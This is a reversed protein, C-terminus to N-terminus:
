LVRVEVTVDQEGTDDNIRIIFRDIGSFNPQPSYLNNAADYSGYAPASVQQRKYNPHLVPRVSTRNFENSRSVTLRQDLSVKYQSCLIPARYFYPTVTVQLRGAIQSVPASRLAPRATAQLRVNETQSLVPQPSSIYPRDTTCGPHRHNRDLDLMLSKDNQPYKLNLISPTTDAPDDHRPDYVSFVALSEPVKRVRLKGDEAQAYFSTFQNCNGSTAFRGLIQWTSCAPLDYETAPLSYFQLNDGVFAQQQKSNPSSYRAMINQTGTTLYQWNYDAPGTQLTHSTLRLDTYDANLSLNLWGHNLNDPQYSFYSENLSFTGRALWAEASGQSSVPSSRLNLQAQGPAFVRTFRNSRIWFPAKISMDSPDLPIWLSNIAQLASGAAPQMSNAFGSILVDNYHRELVVFGLSTNNLQQAQGFNPVNSTEIIRQDLLQGSRDIKVVQVNIRRYDATQGIQATRVNRALLWGGSVDIASWRGYTGPAQDFDLFKYTGIARDTDVSLFALRDLSKHSSALTLSSGSTESGPLWLQEEYQRIGNIQLGEFDLKLKRNTWGNSDFTVIEVQGNDGWTAIPAEGFLPAGHEHQHTLPLRYSTQLYAFGNADETTGVPLVPSGGGAGAGAVGGGGGGGGGGCAALTSLFTLCITREISSLMLLSRLKMPNKPNTHDIKPQGGLGSQTAAHNKPPTNPAVEEMHFTQHTPTSGSTAQPSEANASPGVTSTTRSHTANCRAVTTKGDAAFMQRKHELTGNRAHGILRTAWVTPIALPTLVFTAAPLNSRHM